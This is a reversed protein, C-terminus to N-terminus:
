NLQIWWVLFKLLIRKRFKCGLSSLFYWNLSIENKSAYVLKFRVNYSQLGHTLFWWTAWCFDREFALDIFLKWLKSFKWNLSWYPNPLWSFHDPIHLSVLFHLTNGLTRWQSARAWWGCIFRTSWVRSYEKVWSCRLGCLAQINAISCMPILYM